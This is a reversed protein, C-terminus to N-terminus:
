ENPQEGYGMFAAEGKSQFLAAAGDNSEIQELADILAGLIMAKPFRDMKAKVVLGGLEIKRRTDQKREKLKLLALQRELKAVLQTQKKIKADSLNTTVEDLDPLSM